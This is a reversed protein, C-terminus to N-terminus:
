TPAASGYAAGAAMRRKAEEICAARDAIAGDAIWWDRLDHLVRGIDPGPALGLELLDRGLLPFVPQDMKSVADRQARRDAGDHAEALWLAALARDRPRRAFWRRLDALLTEPSDRWAGTDADLTDREVTSLRLREAIAAVDASEILAALRLLPDAPAGRAVLRRLPSIDRAEPLVAHLLTVERMLEFAAVPDPAELLRKLEM